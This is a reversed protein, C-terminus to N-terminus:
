PKPGWKVLCGDKYKQVQSAKTVQPSYGYNVQISFGRKKLDQMLPSECDDELVVSYGGKEAVAYVQANIRHSIAADSMRLATDATMVALAIM